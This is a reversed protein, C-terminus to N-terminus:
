ALQRYSFRNLYIYSTNSGMGWGVGRASVTKPHFGVVLKKVAAVEIQVILAPTVAARPLLHSFGLVLVRCRKDSPGCRLMDTALGLRRM